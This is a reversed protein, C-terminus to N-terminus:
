SGVDRPGVRLGKVHACSSFYWFWPILCWSLLTFPRLGRRERGLGGDRPLPLVTQEGCFYKLFLCNVSDLIFDGIATSPLSCSLLYSRPSGMECTVPEM